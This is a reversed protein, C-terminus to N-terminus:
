ALYGWSSLNFTGRPQFAKLLKQRISDIKKFHEIAKKREWVEEQKLM